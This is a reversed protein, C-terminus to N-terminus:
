NPQLLNISHQNILQNISQDLPNSVSSSFDGVVGTLHMEAGALTWAHV